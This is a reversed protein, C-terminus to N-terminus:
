PVVGPSGDPLIIPTGSPLSRAQAPSTVRVPQGATAPKPSTAVPRGASNFAPNKESWDALATDFGANLRGGNKSAYDRAFKAVDQKRKEVTKAIGIIQRNGEPTNEINAVTGELFSRDANSFGAGLSGGSADLVSKQSIKKFLENPAAADADGIGISAAGKKFRTVLDGGTGSYFNPDKTLSEMLNLNNIAGTSDRAAKNMGVFTEGYDKGVAKDFEKEGSQVNTSNNVRTAGAAAKEKAYDLFTGGYGQRKALNYGQLEASSEPMITKQIAAIKSAGDLDGLAALSGIAKSYGEGGQGLNALSLAEKRAQEAQAAKYVQPLQGLASFDIQPVTLEAM